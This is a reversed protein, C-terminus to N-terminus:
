ALSKPSVDASPPISIQQLLSTTTRYWERHVTLSQLRLLPVPDECEVIIEAAFADDLLLIELNPTGRLISVLAYTPGAEADIVSLTTLNTSIPIYPWSFTCDSLKVERLSPVTGSFIKDAMDFQKLELYELFPAPDDSTSLQLSSTSDFSLSLRQIRSLSALITSLLPDKNWPIDADISLLVDQSHTLAHQVWDGNKFDIRSWLLPLSLALERWSHCVWTLSLVRLGQKEPTHTKWNLFIETLIEPPLRFIPGQHPRVENTEDASISQM